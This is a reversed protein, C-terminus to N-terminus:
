LNEDKCTECEVCVCVGGDFWHGPSDQEVTLPETGIRVGTDVM